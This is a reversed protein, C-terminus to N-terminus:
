RRLEQKASGKTTYAESSAITEGIAAKLRWRFEGTKNSYIEFRAAM